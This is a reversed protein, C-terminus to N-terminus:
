INPASLVVAGSGERCACCCSGYMVYYRGKRQFLMAGEVFSDPLIALTEGTSSLLDTSLRDIAVMHNQPHRPGPDMATYAVFGIGDDDVLLSSDDLSSNLGAKETMSMLEFHM